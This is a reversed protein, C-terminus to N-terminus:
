LNGSFCAKLVLVDVTCHKQTFGPGQLEIRDKMLHPFASAASLGGVSEINEWCKSWDERQKQQREQLTFPSFVTDEVLKHLLAVPVNRAIVKSPCYSLGGDLVYYALSLNPSM